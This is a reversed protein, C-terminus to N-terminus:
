NNQISCTVKELQVPIKMFIYFKERRERYRQEDNELVYGRRLESYVYDYLTATSQSKPSNSSSNELQRNVSEHRSRSGSGHNSTSTINQDQVHLSYDIPTNNEVINRILESEEKTILPKSEDGSDPLPSESRDEMIIEEYTKIWTM